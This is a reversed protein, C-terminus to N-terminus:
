YDKKIRFATTYSYYSSNIVATNVHSDIKASLDSSVDCTNQGPLNFELAVFDIYALGQKGFSPASLFCFQSLIKGFLSSRFFCLISRLLPLSLQVLLTQWCLHVQNLLLYHNVVDSTNSISMVGAIILWM